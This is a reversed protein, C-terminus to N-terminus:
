SRLRAKVNHEIVSGMEPAFARAPAELFKAQTPPDHRVPKGDRTVVREHVWFGYGHADGPDEGAARDQYAVGYGYGVTVSIGDGDASLVPEEVRGSRKLTGTEVPVLVDSQAMIITGGEYLGAAIGEVIKRGADTFSM